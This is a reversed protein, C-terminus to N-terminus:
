SSGLGRAARRRTRRASRTRRLLPPACSFTVSDHGTVISDHDVNPHAAV